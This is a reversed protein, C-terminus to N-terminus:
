LPLHSCRIIMSLVCVCVRMCVCVCVRVCLFTLVVAAFVLLIVGSFCCTLIRVQFRRRAEQTDESVCFDSLLSKFGHRFESELAAAVDAGEPLFVCGCGFM